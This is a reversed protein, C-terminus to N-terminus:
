GRRSTPEGTELTRRFVAIIEQAVAEPWIIRLAETFDHGILPRVNAFIPRAGSNVQAIRFASDM